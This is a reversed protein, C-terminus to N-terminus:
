WFTGSVLLIAEGCFDHWVDADAGPVGTDTDTEVPPATDGPEKPEGCAIAAM